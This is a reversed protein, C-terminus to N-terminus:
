ALPAHLTRRALSTGRRRDSLVMGFGVLLLILLLGFALIRSATATMIFPVYRLEVTSAGAPVLVGRMVLNTPLITAPAGDVRAEWAPHYLENLVLFRDDTAPDMRVLIRDSDFTADLAGTTPFLREAEWGEAVSHSVPDEVPPDIPAPRLGDDGPLRPADGAPSVRAAFFARPTVAYPNELIELSSLDLPPTASGPGPNLWFARDVVVAYKVNLSALLKWPLGQFKHSSNIDLHHSAVMSEDWPLGALRRPLGTSYGEVLRLDWFASLHPEPLAQFVERDQVLVVRYRDAELRERVAAREAVTPIRMGDPPVQLYDLNSFPRTQATVQPGNIRYETMMLTEAAMWSALVGGAVLLASARARCVLMACAVLLVLASSLVRVLEVTLLRQPRLGDVVPGLQVVALGAAAERALWLLLGALLGGAVWSLTARSLRGPLFRNLFVAALIALPLTMAVSIRSHLFDMKM